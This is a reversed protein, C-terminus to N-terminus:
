CVKIIFYSSVCKSPELFVYKPARTADPLGPCARFFHSFQLLFLLEVPSRLTFPRHFRFHSKNAPLLQKQFIRKPLPNHLPMPLVLAHHPRETLFKPSFSRKQFLSTLPWRCVMHITKQTNKVGGEGMHIM